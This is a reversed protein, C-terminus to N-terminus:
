KRLLPMAKKYTQSSTDQCTASYPHLVRNMQVINIYKMIMRRLNTSLLKMKMNQEPVMELNSEKDRRSESAEMEETDSPDYTDSNESPDDNSCSKFAVVINSRKHTPIRFIKCKSICYGM